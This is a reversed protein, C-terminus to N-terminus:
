FLGAGPVLHPHLPTNFFVEDQYAKLKTFLCLELLLSMPLTLNLQSCIAFNLPTLQPVSQFVAPLSDPCSASFLIFLRNDLSLFGEGTALHGSLQCGAGSQPACSGPDWEM